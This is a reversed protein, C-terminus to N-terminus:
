FWGLVAARAARERSSSASALLKFSATAPTSWNGAADKALLTLRYSGLALLRKRSLRGRFGVANAGAKGQMTLGGGVRVYRMCNTRAGKRPKVCHGHSRRGALKREFTLVVRAPESLRFSITTLKGRRFRAPSLKLKRFAPAVRDPTKTGGGGTKGGGPGGNNPLETTPSGNGKKPPLANVPVGDENHVTVDVSATATNGFKDSAIATLTYNGNDVNISGWKVSYNGTPQTGVPGGIDTGNVQFQVQSIGSADSAHASV